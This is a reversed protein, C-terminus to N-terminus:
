ATSYSVESWERDVLRFVRGLIDVCKLRSTPGLTDRLIHRFEVSSMEPGFTVSHDKLTFSRLQTFRGIMDLVSALVVAGPLDSDSSRLLQVFSRLPTYETGLGDDFTISLVELSEPARALIIPLRELYRDRTLFFVRNSRLHLETLASQGLWDVHQALTMDVVLTRLYRPHIAVIAQCNGTCRTVQLHSVQVRKGDDESVNTHTSAQVFNCADFVLKELSGLTAIANGHRADVFSNCFRLERLHKMHTIANIFRNAFLQVAWSGTDDLRWNVFRCVRVTKAIALALSQKAAIQTCLTSERSPKHAADHRLGTPTDDRFVSGSFEVYEFIRALCHNAFFRCVYSLKTFIALEEPALPGKPAAIYEFIHLYIENPILHLTHDARKRAPTSWKFLSM